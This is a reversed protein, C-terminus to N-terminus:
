LRFILTWYGGVWGRVCVCVCVCVCVSRELSVVEKRVRRGAAITKKANIYAPYFM